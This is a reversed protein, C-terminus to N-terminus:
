EQVAEDNAGRGSSLRFFAVGHPPVHKVHLGKGKDITYSEYTWLDELRVVGPPKTKKPWIGLNSWTISIDIIAEGRNFFLVAWEGDV